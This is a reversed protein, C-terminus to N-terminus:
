EEFDGKMQTTELMYYSNTQKLCESLITLKQCERNVRSLEVEVPDCSVNPFSSQSSRIGLESYVNFSIIFLAPLDLEESELM